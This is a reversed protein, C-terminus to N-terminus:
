NQVAASGYPYREASLAKEMGKYCHDAIYDTLTTTNKMM